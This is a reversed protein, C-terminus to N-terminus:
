SSRPARSCASRQAAREPSPRRRPLAEHPLAIPAAHCRRPLRVSSTCRSGPPARPATTSALTTSSLRPALAWISGSRVRHESPRSRRRRRDHVRLRWASETSPRPMTALARPLNCYLKCVANVECRAHAPARLAGRNGMIMQRHSPSGGQPRRSPPWRTGELHMSSIAEAGPTASGWNVYGKTIYVACRCPIPRRSLAGRITPGFRHRPRLPLPRYPRRIPWRATCQANRGDHDGSDPM